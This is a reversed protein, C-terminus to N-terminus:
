QSVDSDEVKDVVDKTKDVIDEAEDVVKEQTEVREESSGNDELESLEKEEEALKMKAKYIKMRRERGDKVKKIKEETDKVKGEMEELEKEDDGLVVKKVKGRRTIAVVSVLLFLLVIFGGGSFIWNLSGDENFFLAKGTLLVGEDSENEVVPIEEVVINNSVSDNEIVSVDVGEVVEISDSLPASKAFLVCSGGTCDVDIGNEYATTNIDEMFAEAGDKVVINLRYPMGLSFFTKTEFIGDEDSFGSDSNLMPGGGFTWIYVSVM